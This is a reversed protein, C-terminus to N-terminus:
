TGVGYSMAEGIEDLMTDLTHRYCDPMSAIEEKKDGDYIFLPYIFDKPTVVNERVMSRIAASKRNRRPRIRQPVFAENKRNKQLVPVERSFNDFEGKKHVPGEKMQLGSFARSPSKSLFPSFASVSALFCVLLLVKLM